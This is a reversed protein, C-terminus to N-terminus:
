RTENKPIHYGAASHPYPVFSLAQPASYTLEQGRGPVLLPDTVLWIISKAFPKWPMGVPSSSAVCPVQQENRPAQIHEHSYYNSGDRSTSVCWVTPILLSVSTKELMPSFERVCVVHRPTKGLNHNFIDDSQPKM